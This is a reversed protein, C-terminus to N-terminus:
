VNPNPSHRQFLLDYKYHQSRYSSDLLKYIISICRYICILLLWRRVMYKRVGHNSKPFNLQYTLTPAAWFYYLNALSVNYPYRVILGETDAVTNTYKAM